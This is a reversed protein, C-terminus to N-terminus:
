SAGREDPISFRISGRVERASLRYQPLVGPGCAATGVGHQALDLVIHTRGDGHLLHDHTTAALTETSWPRVTLAVGDRAAVELVGAGRSEVGLGELRAWHVGARAGSEQPRVTRELMGDLDRSFWGVHAAQGTDPYAPGPGRGFWRVREVLGPLAFSIGVRAWELRDGGPHHPDISVDLMLGGADVTFRCTLTVAIDTAAAGVHTVVEVADVGDADVSRDISVLRSVLRDLGVKAWHDAESAAGGTDWGMGFDNDIPARWLELRWQEVPQGGLGVVAGTAEDLHLDDLTLISTAPLEVPRMDAPDVTVVQTRAVVWGAPAWVTDDLESAEITVVVGPTRVHELLPPPLPIEATGRPAVPQHAFVGARGQTVGDADLGDSDVSSSASAV